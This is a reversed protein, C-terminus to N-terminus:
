SVPKTLKVSDPLSIKETEKQEDLDKKTETQVTKEENTTDAHVSRASIGMWTVGLMVSVAGITLKRIEFNPKHEAARQMKNLHNNKSM